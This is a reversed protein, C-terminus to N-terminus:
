KLGKTIDINNFSFFAQVCMKIINPRLESCSDEPKGYPIHVPWELSIKHGTGAIGLWGDPRLLEITLTDTQICSNGTGINIRAEQMNKRLIKGEQQNM